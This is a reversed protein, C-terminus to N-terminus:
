GGLSVPAVLDGVTLLVFILLFVGVVVYTLPLLRSTDVPGPDPRGRLRAIWRRAGEWLAGAVHGGDLPLLPILNFVFLALNLSALLQLQTLAFGAVGFDTPTAAAEGAIRGVGVIGIVGTDREGGGFTASAISVLHAPLSAVGQFTLGLMTGFDGVLEGVSAPELESRPSVGVTPVERTVTAGDADLVEREVLEPTVELTVQAGDREVVVATPGTSAAIAAQADAWSAIPTGGWSVLTDGPQLGAAQAPSAPDSATCEQGAAPMCPSVAGLTTTSTPLGIGLYCVALLVFALVLNAVPGGLMVVIRRPVALATFTRSLGGPPIESASFERADAAAERAWRRLGRTGALERRSAKAPSLQEATPYMGVMRIYGGLPIAKVGYETEGRRRSWLTPGFGVMYQTVLVGFRKAPVLHGLEHWAISALLGLVFVGVGLWFM